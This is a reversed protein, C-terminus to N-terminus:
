GLPWTAAFHKLFTVECKVSFEAPIASCYKKLDHLKLWFELIM